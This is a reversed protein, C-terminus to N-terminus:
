FREVIGFANELYRYIAPDYYQVNINIDSGVVVRFFSVFISVALLVYIIKLRTENQSVDVGKSNSAMPQKDGCWYYACFLSPLMFFTACDLLYRGHFIGVKSYALIIAVAVVFFVSSLYFGSPRDKRFINKFLYLLCFLIPFNILGGGNNYTWVYGFAHTTLGSPPVPEVFPFHLSYRYIRFFYFMFTIFMRHIAGLPNVLHAKSNISTAFVYTYGFEFISGFRVYNYICIPIAVMVYPTLIFMALKWSRRKWLVAPVLIFVLVMNARCGVALAFCLCALFLQLRNINEKDVSKLLLFTGAVIFAFGAAQVVTHTGPLRLSTFLHSVFFLAAFSLLVFAFRANPMYKKVLFRWLLALFIVAVSAFVFVADRHSLYDGTILKYPLYLLAVPVIGYYTYFKGKYWSADAPFDVNSQYGKLYLRHKNYPREENLFKEPHGYDLNTRGDILADVLYKNYAFSGPTNCFDEPISTYVYESFWSFFLTLIVLCVYVLTQKRNAPDFKYEFLCYRAKARLPKYAFVIIAFFLLSVVFLRLGNFYYPIQKNVSIQLIEEFLVQEPFLIELESVNGCTHIAIYNEQPLAGYLTRQFGIVGEIVDSEDTWRMRVNLQEHKSFAPQIFVSTVKRNLNKFVVSSETIKGDNEYNLAEMTISGDSITPSNSTIGTLYFEEGAFWKLYHKYNFFVTEVAFALLSAACFASIFSTSHKKRVIVVLGYVAFCALLVTSMINFSRIILAIASSDMYM